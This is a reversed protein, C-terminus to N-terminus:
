AAEIWEPNINSTSERPEVPIPKAGVYSVALWSAIYTNSPVIVEDGNGINLSKLAIILADLGNAVGVAHATQNFNAYETEFASVQEGLVYWAKDFFQEFNHLTEAKVDANMRAFSLFPIKM